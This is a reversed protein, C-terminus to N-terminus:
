SNLSIGPSIAGKEKVFANPAVDKAPSHLGEDTYFRERDEIIGTWGLPEPVSTLDSM